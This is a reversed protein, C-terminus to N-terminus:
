LGLENKTMKYNLTILYTSSLGRQESFSTHEMQHIKCLMKFNNYAQDFIYCSGTEYPIEKMTKSDHLCGQCYSLIYTDTYHIYKSAEKKERFKAWWFVSLYLDVTTSDFAYINKGTQLHGYLM